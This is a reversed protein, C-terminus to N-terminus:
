RTLNDIIHLIFFTSVSLFNVKEGNEAFLYTCELFIGVYPLFFGHFFFTPEFVSTNIDALSLNVLSDVCFFFLIRLNCIKSLLSSCPM